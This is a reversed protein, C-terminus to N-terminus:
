PGCPSRPEASGELGVMTALHSFLPALNSHRRRAILVQSPLLSRDMSIRNVGDKLSWNWAGAMTRHPSM